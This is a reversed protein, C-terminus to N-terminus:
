AKVNGSIGATIIAVAFVYTLKKMSNTKNPKCKQNRYKTIYQETCSGDNAM